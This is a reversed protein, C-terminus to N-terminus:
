LVEILKIPAQSFKHHTQTIDMEQFRAYLTTTSQRHSNPSISVICPTHTGLESHKIWLTDRDCEPLLEFRGEVTIKGQKSQQYLQGGRSEISKTREDKSLVWGYELNHMPQWIPGLYIRSCQIYKDTQDNFQLTWQRIRVPYPLLHLIIPAVAIDANDDGLIGNGFIGSGLGSLLPQPSITVNVEDSNSKGSITVSGNKTINHDVIAIAQILPNQLLNVTITQQGGKGSRWIKWRQQDKLHSLPLNSTTSSATIEAQDVLNNWLFTIKNQM